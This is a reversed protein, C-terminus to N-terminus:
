DFNKPFHILNSCQIFYEPFFYTSLKNIDKENKIKKNLEDVSIKKDSVHTIKFDFKQLLEKVIFQIHYVGAYLIANTVYDKDLFRRLFYVDMFICFLKQYISALNEVDSLIQSIINIKDMYNLGYMGNKKNYKNNPNMNIKKIHDLIKKNIYQAKKFFLNFFNQLNNDFISGIFKKIKNNAYRNKIKILLDKMKENMDDKTLKQLTDISDPVTPVYYKVFLNSDQIIDYLNKADSTIINLTDYITLLNNKDINFASYLKKIYSVLHCFHKHIDYGIYYRIDVYHLRTNKFNNHSKSKKLLEYLEFIYKKKLKSLPKIYTIPFMELFFDVKKDGINNFQETFYKIIETSNEDDCKTQDDIDVHVDMFVYLVKKINNITGELRMVNIPGDINM